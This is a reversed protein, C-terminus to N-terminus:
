GGGVVRDGDPTVLAFAVGRVPDFGSPLRVSIVAEEGPDLVGEWAAPESPNILEMGAPGRVELVRWDQGPRLSSFGRNYSLTWYYAYLDSAALDRLRLGCGSHLRLGVRVESGNISKVELSAARAPCSESNARESLELLSGRVESALTLMGAMGGILLMLAFSATVATSLGM